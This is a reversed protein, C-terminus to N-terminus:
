APALLRTGQISYPPGDRPIVRVPRAYAIYRHSAFFRPHCAQLALVERHHSRLVELDTANVIVHRVIEYEFTAYPLEITARDGPRLSEIHSFPALYSTRHGAIYVLEGQGPLFSGVYRGPGKKLTGSDTGNVIILDLGLRPIRLRGVPDGRKLSKRYRNAELVLRGRETAPSAPAKTRVRSAVRSAVSERPHSFGALLDDYRAALKHQEYTTYLTTFPDKWKWVVFTWAIAGLGGVILLTGAIRALRRM